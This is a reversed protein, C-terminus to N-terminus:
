NSPKVALVLRDDPASSVSVQFHPFRAKQLVKALEGAGVSAEGEFTTREGELLRERLFRIQRVGGLLKKFEGLQRPNLNGEVAIKVVTLNLTGTSMAEQLKASLETFLKPQVQEMAAQLAKPSENGVTQTRSAELLSRGTKTQWLELTYTIKHEGADPRPRAVDVRGSLIVDANLYQALLTQDERRLSETRYNPPLSMRFSQNTPDLVSVNKGKFQVSLQQFFRKFYGQALSPTRSEGLDAWWLYRSGQAESIQVLPLLRVTESGILGAERLVTELADPSLRMQVQIKNEAPVSGKIFVVYKTSNKLIKGKVQDWSKAVKDSGLFDEALDKTATEVAQEFAEQKGEAGRKATDIELTVDKLERGAAAGTFLSLCWAATWISISGM